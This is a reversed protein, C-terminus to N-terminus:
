VSCFRRYVSEPINKSSFKLFLVKLSQTHMPGTKRGFELFKEDKVLVTAENFYVNQILEPQEAYSFSRHQFCRFIIEVALYQIAEQLRLVM